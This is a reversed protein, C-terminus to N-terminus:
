QMGGTLFANIRQEEERQAKASMPKGLASLAREEVRQKHTAFFGVGGLVGLGLILLALIARHKKSSFFAHM